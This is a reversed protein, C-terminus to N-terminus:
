KIKEMNVNLMGVEMCTHVCLIRGVECWNMLAVEKLGLEFSKEKLSTKM